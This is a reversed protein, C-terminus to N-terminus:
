RFIKIQGMQTAYIKGIEPNHQLQVSIIKGCEDLRGKDDESVYNGITLLLLICFIIFGNWRNM